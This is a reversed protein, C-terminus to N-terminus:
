GVAEEPDQLKLALAHVRDALEEALVKHVMRQRAVRNQGAFAEAVITVRFHSEGRGDHGAHGEHKHSEDKIILEVPKLEAELKQRMTEAVTGM